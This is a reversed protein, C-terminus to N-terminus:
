TEHGREHRRVTFFAETAALGADFVRGAQDVMDEAIRVREDAL